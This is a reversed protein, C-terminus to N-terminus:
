CGDDGAWAGLRFGPTPSNMRKVANQARNIAAAFDDLMSRGIRRAEGQAEGTDNNATNKLLRGTVYDCLDLHYQEPLEPSTDTALTLTNIPLRAVRLRATPALAIVAANPKRWFTIKSTATDTAFRSPRGAFMQLPSNTDFFEPDPLPQGYIQSWSRRGLPIDSDSLRASLVGLISAHLAYDAQGDILTIQVVTPTTDDVLTWTERAFIRQAAILQRLIREQSWLKDPDGVVLSSQDDLAARCEAILESTKM